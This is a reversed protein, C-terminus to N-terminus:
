DLIEGCKISGSFGNGHECCAAGPGYGSGFIDLGCRGEWDNRIDNRLRSRSTLLPIKKEPKGVLIKHVNKM